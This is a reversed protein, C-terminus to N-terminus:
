GNGREAVRSRDVGRTRVTRGQVDVVLIAVTLLLSLSIHGQAM